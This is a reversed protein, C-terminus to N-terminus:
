VIPHSHVTVASWLLPRACGSRRCKSSCRHLVEDFRRMKRKLGSRRLLQRIAQKPAMLQQRNSSVEGDAPPHLLKWLRM